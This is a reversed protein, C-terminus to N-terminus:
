AGEGGTCDHDNGAEIPSNGSLTFASEAECPQTGYVSAKIISEDGRKVSVEECSCAFRKEEFFMEGFLACGRACAEELNLTNNISDVEHGAHRVARLLEEQLRPTHMASGSIVVTDIHQEKVAQVTDFVIHYFRDFLNDGHTCATEFDEKTFVGTAMDGEFMNPIEYTIDDAGRASLNRKVTEAAARLKYIIAETRNLSTHFEDCCM